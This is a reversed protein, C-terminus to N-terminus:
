RYFASWVFKLDDNTKLELMHFTDERRQWDITFLVRAQCVRWNEPYWPLTNLKIKMDISLINESVRFQLPPNTDNFYVFNLHPYANMRIKIFFISSFGRNICITSWTPGHFSYGKMTVYKLYAYGSVGKKWFLPTDPSRCRYFGM